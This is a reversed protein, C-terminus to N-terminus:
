GAGKKNNRVLVRLAELTTHVDRWPGDESPWRGDPAQLDALRALAARRLPDDPPLGALDLSTLLWALGSAALDPLRTALYALASRATDRRGVRWWLGAALWHTHLFAPLRGDADMAAALTAAARAAAESAADALALWFGCNATLYLRAAADGPRAWPPAVEAVEASEEWAGAGQQRGALFALARRAAEAGLAGLAEAQALRFCTADLSSYDAAWFPAWGGDARQGAFVEALAEAPAPAGTLAYALRAQDVATGHRQVFSIAGQRDFM